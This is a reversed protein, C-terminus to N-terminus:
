DNGTITLKQWSLLCQLCRPLPFRMQPITEMLSAQPANKLNSTLSLPDLGSHTMDEKSLHDKTTYFPPQIHAPFCTMWWCEEVTEAQAWVKLNRRQDQGSKVQHHVAVQFGSLHMKEWTAKPWQRTVAVSDFWSMEGPARDNLVVLCLNWAWHM